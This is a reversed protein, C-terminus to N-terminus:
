CRPEIGSAGDDDLLEFAGGGGVKAIGGGAEGLSWSTAVVWQGRQLVWVWM